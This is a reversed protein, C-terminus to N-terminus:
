KTEELSSESLNLFHLYDKLSNRKFGEAINTPVSSASRRLQSVLGFKEESPFKQTLKYINLVLNHSKEWVKLEKFTKM